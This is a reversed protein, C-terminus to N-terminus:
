PKEAAQLAMLAAGHAADGAPQVPELTPCQQALAAQLAARLAANKTLVSGALAVRARGFALAGACATALLALQQAAKQQIALAAADGQRCADELLPAFAAVDKKETGNKYVHAIIAGPGEAGLMSYVPVALLTAPARGDCARLVAALIDRGIAYGSGEDDFLHGWGGCRHSAGASNKGFCISGTGAILVLGPEGKLAGYLATEHDGALVLGGTYGADQVLGHLLKEAAPNSLGATGICLRRCAALGGPMRQMAALAQNVSQAVALPTGGNLNMAGAQARLAAGGDLPLCEVATKTGGGDWGAVYGSM